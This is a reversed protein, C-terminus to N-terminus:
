RGRPKLIKWQGNQEPALVGEDVLLQLGEKPRQNVFPEYLPVLGRRRIKPVTHTLDALGFRDTAPAIGKIIQRLQGVQYDVPANWPLGEMSARTTYGAFMQLRPQRKGWPSEAVFAVLLALAAVVFCAIALPQNQYGGVSVGVGVLLSVSFGALSWVM